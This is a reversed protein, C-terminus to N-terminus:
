NETVGWTKLTQLVLGRKLPDALAAKLNIYAEQLEPDESFDQAVEESSVSTETSNETPGKDGKSVTSGLASGPHSTKRRGGQTEQKRLIEQRQKKRAQSRMKKGAEVANVLKAQQNSTLNFVDALASIIDDSPMRNENEIHSIHGDTCGIAKALAPQSLRQGERWKRIMEGYGM